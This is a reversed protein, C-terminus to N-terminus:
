NAWHWGRHCKPCLTPPSPVSKAAAQPISKQQQKAPTQTHPKAFHGPKGSVFCNGRPQRGNQQMAKWPQPPTMGKM